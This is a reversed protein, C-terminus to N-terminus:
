IEEDLKAFGADKSMQLGCDFPTEIVNQFNPLKESWDHADEDNVDPVFFKETGLPIGLLM